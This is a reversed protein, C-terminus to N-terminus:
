IGKLSVPYVGELEVWQIGLARFTLTDPLDGGVWLLEIETSTALSKDSSWGPGAGEITFALDMPNATLMELRVVTGDSRETIGALEAQVAAAVAASPNEDSLEFLADLPYAVLPDVIEVGVIDGVDTGAPLEFTAVLSDPGDPGGDVTDGDISVRWSAPYLNPDGAISSGGGPALSFIEYEVSVSAGTGVVDTPIVASSAILTENPDLFYENSSPTTSSVNEPPLSTADDEARVEEIVRVGIGGAALMGVLFGAAGALLAGCHRWM